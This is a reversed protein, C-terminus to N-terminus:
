RTMSVMAFVAGQPDLCQAIWSGGPVQHPGIMVSGGASKTREVAADIGDVNIYYLWSPAPTEPMKTMMGGVPYGGTAFMQYMGQPGMDIADANTWEFIGSYFTWAKERDGAHLEHWGVRGPAGLAPEPAVSGEKPEFLIFAAGDPDAAVSFRGIGPIIQPGRHIKGGASQVKEGYSELGQVGIHGLWGPRAGGAAAEPSLGMGGAAMQGDTASFLTYPPSDPIGSDSATWGIVDGYFTVAADVDTTMLDYWVFRDAM